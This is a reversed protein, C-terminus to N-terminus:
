RSLESDDSMPDYAAALVPCVAPTLSGSGGSTIVAGQDCAAQLDDAQSQAVAAAGASRAAQAKLWEPLAALIADLATCVQAMSPRAEPRGAWCAALLENYGPPSAAPLTPRLGEAAVAAALELRGYGAELM